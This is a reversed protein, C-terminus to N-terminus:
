ERRRTEPGDGTTTKLDVRLLGKGQGGMVKGVKRVGKLGM